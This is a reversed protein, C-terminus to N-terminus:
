FNLISERVHEAADAARGGLALLDAYLRPASVVRVSNDSRAPSALRLTSPSAGWFVVRGGEEVQRLKARDLAKDLSGDTMAEEPVYLHLVPVQTAYPAELELAAWTSAAWALTEGLAVSLERRLFDIPDTMLAHAEITPREISGVRAAWERLLDDGDRLRRAARPGRETGIKETWGRRDFEILTKSVQSASWNTLRQLEANLIPSRPQALLAEAVDISARNWRFPRSLSLATADARGIGNSRVQPLEHRIVFLGRPGVIHAEGSEAAWNANREALLRLAGPSFDRAVVVHDLRWPDPAESLV